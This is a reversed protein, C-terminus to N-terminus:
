PYEPAETNHLCYNNLLSDVESRENKPALQKYAEIDIAHLCECAKNLKNKKIYYLALHKFTYPSDPAIQIAKKLYVIAKDLDDKQTYVLGLNSLAFNHNPSYKLAKLLYYEASDLQKCEIYYYGINNYILPNKNDYQLAKKMLNLSETEEKKNYFYSHGLSLYAFTQSSDLELIKHLCSDSKEYDGQDYFVFAHEYLSQITKEIDIKEKETQEHTNCCFLFLSFSLYLLHKM